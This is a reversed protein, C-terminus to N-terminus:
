EKPSLKDLAAYIEHFDKPPVGQFYEKLKLSTVWGLKAKTATSMTSDMQLSGLTEIVEEMEHERRASHVVGRTLQSNIMKLFPEGTLTEQVSALVDDEIGYKHAAITMELLLAVFGKMFISRFMKSASASGAAGEMLTLNMGYASLQDFFPKAGTGSVSLPVKHGYTPVPGMVAGDVFLAVPSIIKDIEEKTMPAAANIDIYIQQAKLFPKSEIALPVALNASVASFVIDASEIMEQLSHALGVGIEKARKQIL